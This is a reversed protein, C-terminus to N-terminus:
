QIDTFTGMCCSQLQYKGSDGRDMGYEGVGNISEVPNPYGCSEHLLLTAFAFLFSLKM